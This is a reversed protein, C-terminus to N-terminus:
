ALIRCIEAPLGRIGVEFAFVHGAMPDIEADRGKAATTVYLTTLDPGGFAPKTVQATPIPVVLEPRGEPSFRTVRSAGFHAIWVHGEADVTMGDPHGSGEEFSVFLERAGPAGDEGFRHRFVRGSTTDACYLLRHVPDVAPGNTIVAPDGFSALGDLSWRYFRGTPEAEADDMSGFYLSGDPGVAADNLRNGPRDPEPRLVIERMGSGLDLRALGSKLGIVVVEPDPTLAVFGLPEDLEIASPQAGPRWRWLRGKAIDVFLLTGTRRDWVPGEGLTAGCPVAVRHRGQFVAPTM